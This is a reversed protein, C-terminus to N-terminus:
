VSSWFTYLSRLSIFAVHLPHAHVMPKLASLTQAVSSSPLTGPPLGAIVLARRASDSAKDLMHTVQSRSLAAANVCALFETAVDVPVLAGGPMIASVTSPTGM